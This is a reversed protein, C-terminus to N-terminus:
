HFYCKFISSHESRDNVKVQAPFALSDVYWLQMQWAGPTVACPGGFGMM